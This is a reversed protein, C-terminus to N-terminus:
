HRNIRSWITNGGEEIRVMKIVQGHSDRIFVRSATPDGPVFFVDGTEALWRARPFGTRQGMLQGNEETIDYYANPESVYRGVYDSLDGADLQVSQRNPYPITTGHVAVLMWGSPRRVFTDEEVGEYEGIGPPGHVILRYVMFAGTGFARFQVDEYHFAYSHPPAIPVLERMAEASTLVRGNSYAFIADASVIARYVARNGEIFAAFRRRALETLQQQESPAPVRVPVDEVRRTGGLVIVLALCVRVAIFM